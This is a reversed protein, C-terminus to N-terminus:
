GMTELCAVGDASVMMHKRFLGDKKELVQKVGNPPLAGGRMITPNKSSDLFSNVEHQLQYIAELLQTYVRVKEDKAIIELDEEIDDKDAHLNQLKENLTAITGGATLVKSLLTNQASEFLMDGMKSAPRFRTPPVPVVEMFFIDAVATPLDWATRPQGNAGFESSGHRGYILSCVTPENKFVRRLHARVEAVPMIRENRGRSSKIMGNAARPLNLNEEPNGSDIGGDVDMIGIDDGEGEDSAEEEEEDSAISGGIGEDSDSEDAAKRRRHPTPRKSIRLVNPQIIKNARNLAKHKESLDYEIIKVSGEKRFTYAM